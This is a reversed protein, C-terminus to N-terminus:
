PQEETRPHRHINLPARSGTSRAGPSPSCHYPTSGHHPVPQGFAATFAGTLYGIFHVTALLGGGRIGIVGDALMMPLFPTFAFRGIGVAVALSQFDPHM